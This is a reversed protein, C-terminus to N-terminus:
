HNTSRRLLKGSGRAVWLAAVGTAATPRLASPAAGFYGGVALLVVFTPGMYAFNPNFQHYHIIQPALAGRVNFLIGHLPVVQM